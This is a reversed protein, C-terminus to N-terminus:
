AYEQNLSYNIYTLMYEKLLYGRKLQQTQLMITASGLQPTLWGQNSTRLHLPKIYKSYTIIDTPIGSDKEINAHASRAGANFTIPIFKAVVYLLRNKISSMGGYKALFAQQVGPTNFWKAAARTNLQYL